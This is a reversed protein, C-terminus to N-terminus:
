TMTTQIIDMFNSLLLNIIGYFTKPDAADNETSLENKCNGYVNITSILIIRKVNNKLM